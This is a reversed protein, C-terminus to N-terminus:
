KSKAIIYKILPIKNLNKWEEEPLQAEKAMAILEDKTMQTLKKALDFNEAQEATSVNKPKTEEEGEPKPPKPVDKPEEVISTTPKEEKEEELSEGEINETIEPGDVKGTVVPKKDKEKTEEKVEELLTISADKAMLQQLFEADVIGICDKDFPIVVFTFDVSSNVRSKNATHIKVLSM